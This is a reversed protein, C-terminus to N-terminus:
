TSVSGGPKDLGYQNGSNQALLLSICQNALLPQLRHIMNFIQVHFWLRIQTQAWSRSAKWTCKMWSPSACIYVQYPVRNKDRGKSLQVSHAQSICFRSFVRGLTFCHEQLLSKGKEQQKRYGRWKKNPSHGDGRKRGLSTINIQIQKCKLILHHGERRWVMLQSGTIGLSVIPSLLATVLLQMLFPM